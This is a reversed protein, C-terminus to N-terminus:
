QFGCEELFSTVTRCVLRPTEMAMYHTTNLSAMCAGPIMGAVRAIDQETRSTDRKAHAVLTPCVIRPLLGTMDLDALMRWMACLGMPDSALRLTAFRPPVDFGGGAFAARVGRLEITEIRRLAAERRDGSLGTAPALMVLAAAREPHLASFAAAVSAGVANGVVAVPEEISLADLLKVLDGALQDITVLGPVKESLGVGRQDYRLVSAFESLPLVVDDWSELTGGMEHILVIPARRGKDFDYRLQLGGAEIWRGAM